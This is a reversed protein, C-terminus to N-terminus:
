VGDTVGSRPWPGRGNRVHVFLASCVFDIPGWQVTLSFKDIIKSVTLSNRLTQNVLISRARSRRHSGVNLSVIRRIASLLTAKRGRDTGVRPNKLSFRDPFVSPCRSRSGLHCQNLRYTPYIQFSNTIGPRKTAVRPNKFAFWSGSVRKAM